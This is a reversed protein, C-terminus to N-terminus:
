ACEKLEFKASSMDDYIKFLLNARTIEFILRVKENINLLVVDGNQERLKRALSVIVVLGSSDIFDLESMDIVVKNANVQESITKKYQKFNSADIRGNLKLVGLNSEQQYNLKM